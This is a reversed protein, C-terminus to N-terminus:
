KTERYLVELNDLVSDAHITIEAAISQLNLDYEALEICENMYHLIDIIKRRSNDACENIRFKRIDLERPTM